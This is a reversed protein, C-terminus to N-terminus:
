GDNEGTVISRILALLESKQEKTLSDLPSAKPEEPAEHECKDLELAKVEDAGLALAERVLALVKVEAALRSHHALLCKYFALVACAFDAKLISESGILTVEGSSSKIM